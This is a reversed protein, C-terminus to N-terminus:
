RSAPVPDRITNQLIPLFFSTWQEAHKDAYNEALKLLSKQALDLAGEYQCTALGTGRLADRALRVLFFDSRMIKKQVAAEWALVRV